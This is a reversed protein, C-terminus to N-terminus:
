INLKLKTFMVFFDLVYSKSNGDNIMVAQSKKPQSPIDSDSNDLRWVLKLYFLKFYRLTRQLHQSSEPVALGSYLSVGQSRFFTTTTCLTTQFFCWNYNLNLRSTSAEPQDKLCTITTRPHDKVCALSFLYTVAKVM